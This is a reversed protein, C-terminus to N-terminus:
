FFAGQINHAEIIEMLQQRVDGISNLDRKKLKRLVYILKIQM